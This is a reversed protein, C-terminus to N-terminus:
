RLRMDAEPLAFANAAGCYCFNERCAGAPSPLHQVYRKMEEVLARSAPLRQCLIEIEPKAPGIWGLWRDREEQSLFQTWDSMAELRGDARLFQGISTTVPQVSVGRGNRRKRM